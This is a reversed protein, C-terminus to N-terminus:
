GKSHIYVPVAFEVELGDYALAVGAPLSANVRTYEIDHSLHIFYTKKAGVKQQFALAEEVTMQMRSSAVWGASVVLVELNMLRSFLAPEYQKIDTVYAFSGIRFGTVPMDGQAYSFYELRIEDIDFVGSSGDLVHFDVMASFNKRESKPTFHYYFLKKVNDFSAQSLYCPIARHTHISYSRLEELGGVHDYHTHTLLMARPSQIKYQLAQTRFDPSADIIIDKGDLRINVSTRLRKNKPNKSRCTDCDCGIMPVGASAGTGIFQIKGTKIMQV